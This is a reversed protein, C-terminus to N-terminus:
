GRPHNKEHVMKLKDTGVHTYIQTNSIDTHGLMVQVIRLDAGGELLHTAFSHRLVHPRIKTKDIGAKVAYTKLIAWFNQRTMKKARSTVFLDHSLRGKLISGRATDLYQKLWYMASEGIPVVREKSGKGYAIIYGTQLNLDNLRLSVLESVRTGTAYLTEIMARDRMGILSRIDPTELLGDVEEISLVSPLRRPFKPMDLIATPSIDIFGEKQLFRYFCRLAVLSRVYSRPSLGVDKLMSLFSVILNPSVDMVGVKKNHIFKIYREVERKYSVVTNRSFGHEIVLAEIFGKLYVRDSNM